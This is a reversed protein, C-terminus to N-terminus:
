AWHSWSLGNRYTLPVQPGEADLIYGFECRDYSVKVQESYFVNYEINLADYLSQVDGAPHLVDWPQICTVGKCSKLVLLLADLRNVVQSM